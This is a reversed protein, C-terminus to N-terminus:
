SCSTDYRNQYFVNLFCQGDEFTFTIAFCFGKQEFYDFGMGALVDPVKDKRFQVWLGFAVFVTAGPIWLCKWGPRALGLNCAYTAFACFLFGLLALVLLVHKQNM